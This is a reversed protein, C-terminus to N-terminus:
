GCNPSPKRMSPRTVDTSSYTSSEQAWRTPGAAWVQRASAAAWACIRSRRSCPLDIRSIAAGM